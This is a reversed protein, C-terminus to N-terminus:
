FPIEDDLDAAPRRDDARAAPRRDDAPAARRDDRRDDDRGGRPADRRDRDDRGRRDDERAGGRPADRGGRDDRGGSRGGRDDRDRGGGRADRGGRDDGRSGGGSPPDGLDLKYILIEMNVKEVGDRDEWKQQALEGTVSLRQGKKVYKEIVDILGDQFSLCRYWDTFEERGRKRNVALSFQVVDATGAKRIEPDSGVHGTVSAVAYTM